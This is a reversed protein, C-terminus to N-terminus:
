YRYTRTANLGQIVGIAIIVIGWIINGFKKM